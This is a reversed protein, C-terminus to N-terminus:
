CLNGKWTDCPVSDVGVEAEYTTKTINEFPVTIAGVGVTIQYFVLYPTTKIEHRFLLIQVM